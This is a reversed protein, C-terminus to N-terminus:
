TKEQSVVIKVMKNIFVLIFISTISNNKMNILLIVQHEFKGPERAITEHNSM